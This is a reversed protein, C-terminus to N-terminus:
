RCDSGARCDSESGSSSDSDSVDSETDTDGSGAAVTSFASVYEDTMVNWGCHTDEKAICKSTWHSM